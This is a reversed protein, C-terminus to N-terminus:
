RAWTEPETITIRPGEPERSVDAKAMLWGATVPVMVGTVASVWQDRNIMVSDPVGWIPSVQVRDKDPVSKENMTGSAEVVSSWVM